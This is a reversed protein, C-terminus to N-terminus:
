RSSKFMQLIRVVLQDISTSDKPTEIAPVEAYEATVTALEKGKMSFVASQLMFQSDVEKISVKAQLSQTGISKPMDECEILARFFGSQQVASWFGALKEGDITMSYASDEGQRDVSQIFRHSMYVSQLQGWAAPSALSNRLQAACQAGRLQQSQGTVNNLNIMVWKDKLAPAVAQIIAQLQQNPQRATGVFLEYLKEPQSSRAYLMGGYLVAEIPMDNVTGSLGYRRDQSVITVDLTDTVVRYSGPAVAVHRAAGLLAREPSNKWVGFVMIAAVIGGITLLGVVAVSLQFWRRRYLPKPPATNDTPIM